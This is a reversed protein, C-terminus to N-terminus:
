AYMAYTGPCTLILRPVTLQAPTTGLLNARIKKAYIHVLRTFTNQQIKKWVADEALEREAGSMEEDEEEYDVYVQPSIIDEGGGGRSNKYYSSNNSGSSGAKAAAGASVVGGSGSDRRFQAEM